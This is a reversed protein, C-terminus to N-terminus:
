DEGAQSLEVVRAADGQEIAQRPSKGGLGGHPSELFSLLAWGGQTGLGKAIAPLVEWIDSAFQWRPLRYRRVGDKIAIARGQAIWTQMKVLGVGAISAAERITVMDAAQLRPAYLKSSDVVLARTQASSLYPSTRPAVAGAPSSGKKKM